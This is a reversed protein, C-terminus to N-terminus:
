VIEKGGDMLAVLARSIVNSKGLYNQKAFLSLRQDLGSDIRIQISKMYPKKPRGGKNKQISGDERKKQLPIKISTINKFQKM